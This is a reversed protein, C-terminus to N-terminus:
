LGCIVNMAKEFNVMKASHEKLTGAYAKSAKLLDDRFVPLSIHLLHDSQVPAPFGPRDITREKRELKLHPDSKKESVSWRIRRTPSLVPKSKSTDFVFYPHALHAMKNRFGVWLIDIMEDRYVIQDMHEKAFKKVQKVSDKGSATVCGADLGALFEMFSLCTMLAPFYAHKLEGNAHYKRRCGRLCIAMDKRFGNVRVAVSEVADECKIM